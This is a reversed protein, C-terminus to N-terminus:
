EKSVAPSPATSPYASKQFEGVVGSHDLKTNAQRPVITPATAPAAPSITVACRRSAFGFRLGIDFVELSQILVGGTGGM